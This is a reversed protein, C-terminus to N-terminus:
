LYNFYSPRFNGGTRGLFDISYSVIHKLFRLMLHLLVTSYVELEPDDLDGDDDDVDDVEDMKDIDFNIPNAVGKSRGSSAPKKSKSPSAKPRRPPLDGDLLMALEEELDDDGVDMNGMLNDIDGDNGVGALIGM